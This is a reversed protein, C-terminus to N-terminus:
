PTLCNKVFDFSKPSVTGDHLDLSQQLVEDSMWGDGGDPGEWTERMNLIKVADLGSEGGVFMGLVLAGLQWVETTGSTADQRAIDALVDPGCYESIKWVKPIM